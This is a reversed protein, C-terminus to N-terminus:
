VNPNARRNKRAEQRRRIAAPMQYVYNLFTALFGLMDDADEESVPETFDGHAMDNGLYRIEHAEDKIQESIVGDAALEDIKSALNGKTVKKDKATAELVSRAMLIAARYSRISFCAYAESAADAIHQPVDEFEKGLPEDPLWVFPQSGDNKSFVSNADFRDFGDDVYAAMLAINPYGCYDCKFFAAWISDKDTQYSDGMRTM